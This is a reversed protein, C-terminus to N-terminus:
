RYLPALTAGGLGTPATSSTSLWIKDVRAGDERVRVYLTHKGPTLAFTASPRKWAWAGSSGTTAQNLTGGDLQVWFSDSSGDPGTSLLHVYVTASGSVELEYALYSASVDGSGNPTHMYQGNSRTADSVAAFAGTRATYTEAELYGGQTAAVAYYLGGGGSIPTNTATNTPSALPTNTPTDTATATNSPTPTNTATATNSPTPTDTATATNSPTPTDTATATNTPSNIATSTATATAVAGGRFQPALAAGGLGTPATASTSLYIKDVRAGDERLRVYLTHTGPTLQFSGSPRKWAWTAGSGTTVQPRSSGDVQVLFSDSSGDPGNSLLHVYLPGSTTTDFEYSLVTTDETGGSGNPTHMYQGNSRAADSVAAFGGARCTYTEAELYGGQAMNLAYFLPGGGSMPTNTPTGSPTNTAISTLTSTPTNTPTSSPGTATSTPTNTPTGTPGGGTLGNAAGPTGGSQTSAAWSAAQGNDSAAGILSLSPGAGDPATPWPPLDLYDVFDIQSGLADVLEIAEGRNSLNGRLDGYPAFGYRSTFSAPDSALVIYQGPAITAGLPFRFSLGRAFSVNDLRLPAGGRNYLEVFEYDDGDLPPNASPAVPNYHVENIVLNEFPQPPYFTYEALPSWVSGNLVRARVTTVQTLSVNASDGGNTASAAVGGFAARPDSGNTTYFIDGASANPTNSLNLTYNATIAGGAKAFAPPKVTTQYWGNTVYQGVLTNSRNPCYSTLKDDRVNLWTKQESDSVAGAPDTYATPLDRSHLYAPFNKPANNGSPYVDRAYDGWRASEGIVGQDIINSLQSYIATCSTPALAGGTEVVHKYLRDALVQRFEANTLLRTFIRSPADDAGKVDQMLTTNETVKNFGSDNDWPTFKFRTDAGTRQRYADWNHHPWDTKAIYHNLVFYDALNAVDVKTAITQYQVNTIAASGSVLSLLENYADITGADAVPIDGLDEDAAVVDYDLDTLGLYAQYFKEDLRETINYLGWYLGNLYLHAYTGHPALNGMQLWARRAWEDNVYDTERRQDRDFYSWSRNGGNRLVLRDFKAVPDNHDFLQFDLKPTGYSAKFYVRFSKKPQRFPRRSAQGHIRMGGSVNFGTSGDPGIWELSIPREWKTGLPDTDYPEKASPNYYIGSSPDWLNPLDTVISLSPLAKMVADGKGSNNAHNWVEPDMGYDAPYFGDSDAAAFTSPWGAQPADPQTRVAALFLYTNTAVPSKNSSSTYAIARVVTTSSVTFPGGYLTGSGPTPTAGNLTYRISGGGPSSLALQFPSSFFGRQVSFTPAALGTTQASALRPPAMAAFLAALLLATILRGASLATGRASPSSMRAGKLCLSGDVARKRQPQYTTAAAAM